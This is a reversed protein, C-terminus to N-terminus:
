TGRTPTTDRPARLGVPVAAAAAKAMAKAAATVVATMTHLGHHAATTVLAAPLVVRRVEWVAVEYTWM